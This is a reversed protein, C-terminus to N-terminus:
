RVHKEEKNVTQKLCEKYLRVMQTALFRQGAENFHIKDHYM